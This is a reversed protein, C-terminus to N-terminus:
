VENCLYANFPGASWEEFFWALYFNNSFHSGIALHYKRAEQAVQHSIIKDEWKVFCHVTGRAKCAQPMGSLWSSYECKTQTVNSFVDSHSWTYFVYREALASTEDDKSVWPHRPWDPQSFRHHVRSLDGPISSKVFWNWLENM